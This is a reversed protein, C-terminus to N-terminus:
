NETHKKGNRHEDVTLWHSLHCPAPRDKNDTVTVKCHTIRSLTFAFWPYGCTFGGFLFMMTYKEVTMCHKLEIIGETTATEQIDVSWKILISLMMM